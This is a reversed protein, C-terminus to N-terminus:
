ITAFCAKSNWKLAVQQVHPKAEILHLEHWFLASESTDQPILTKSWHHNSCTNTRQRACGTSKQLGAGCEDGREGHLALLGPMEPVCRLRPLEDACSPHSRHPSPIHLPKLIFMAMNHEITAATTPSKTGVPGLDSRCEQPGRSCRRLDSPLQLFGKKTKRLSYRM